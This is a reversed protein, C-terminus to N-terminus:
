LPPYRVHSLDMAVGRFEVPDNTVTSPATVGRPSCGRFLSLPPWLHSRLWNFPPFLPIPPRFRIRPRFLLSTPVTERSILLTSSSIFPPSYFSFSTLLSYLTTPLLPILLFPYTKRSLITCSSVKYVFKLLINYYYRSVRIRRNSGSSNELYKSIIKIDSLVFSFLRTVVFSVFNGKIGALHCVLLEFSARIMSRM